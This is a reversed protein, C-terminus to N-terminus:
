VCLYDYRLCGIVKQQGRREENVHQKEGDIAGEERDMLEEM